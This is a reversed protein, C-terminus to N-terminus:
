EVFKAIVDKKKKFAEVGLAQKIEKSNLDLQKLL